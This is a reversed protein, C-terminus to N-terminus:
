GLSNQIVGSPYIGDMVHASLYTVVLGNAWYGAVSYLVQKNSNFSAM